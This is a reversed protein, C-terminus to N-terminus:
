ASVAANKWDLVQKIEDATLNHWEGFDSKYKDRIPKWIRLMARYREVTPCHSNLGCKELTESWRGQEKLFRLFGMLEVENNGDFGRFSVLFPDIGAKDTLAEYSGTLDRHMDLVDYVFQCHEEPLEEGIGQFVEGYFATYGDTLVERCMAYHEKEHPDLKELLAFQNALQLREIITLSRPTNDAM